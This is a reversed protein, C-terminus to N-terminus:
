RVINALEQLIQDSATITRANVQFGRQAIILRTFELSVDVNSSELAKQQVAGRGGSLGTGLLAPGSESSLSYYNDGIRKLAGPNAFTALALQAIPLNRGNTFIGNILGDQGISLSTLFGAEYGDQGTAVASSNGGVQTLGDFANTSGMGFSIKQPQSFGNFQVSITGDGIGTGTAQRFSGDENFTIGAVLGDLVTGEKPDIRATLDWTNAASTKQMVITLNHASGQADYVQIGTQTTDGDKGVTTVNLNNDIWRTGGVNGTVDNLSVKLKSPGTLNDTIIIKGSTDLSATSGPFGANIANVLDGVTTAPGVPLNLTVSTDLATVGQIQIKDGAIYDVLNNDLSNLTTTLTAPAGATKLPQASTLQQALPGIAAATLNGQMNVISTVNGPIGTGLPIRIDGNGAAQFVPSSPSGEGVTGFRQIRYGNSPDVLYNNADVSFAGARTFFSESGSRGVFFGSGQIAMDLDRGTSEISGQQFNADVAAVQAGLGIQVPDTGGVKDSSATSAENVTQYVLDSFRTRQSKFSTTNANALNNGVVDLMQQHIRLGTVGTFLSNAM